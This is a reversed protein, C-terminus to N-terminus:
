ELANTAPCTLHWALGSQAYDLEVEGDLSRKAMSRTVTTGFGLHEPQGVPPGGRETWNMALTEGDLRWDIDVHGADTSLAGYKGANTALEHIALGLAQSAAANLHLKPGGVAIRPGILDAFHALQARVLDEMDVGHWKHRVLLDQNAALAQIRAAFRETFSEPSSAATQRAIVQVLGLMNKARHNAERMLLRIEEEARKRESIDEVVSVLYDIAGQSTLVSSVTKRIWVIASDKRVSRNEVSYSDIKGARLQEFERLELALDDPHIIEQFSKVVLEEAPWGLIRSMARNVRFWRGDASFHAVGVAANEFTARFRAESEELSRAMREVATLRAEAEHRQLRQSDAESREALMGDVMRCFGEVSAAAAIGYAEITLLDVAHYLRFSLVPEFWLVSAVATSGATFFGAARDLFISALVVLIFYLLFPEGPVEIEVPLQFATAASVAITAILIRILFHWSRAAVILHLMAIRREAADKLQRAARPAAFILVAEPPGDASTM